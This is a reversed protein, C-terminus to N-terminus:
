ASSWRREDALATLSRLESKCPRGNAHVFGVRALAGSSIAMLLDHSITYPPCASCLCQLCEVFERVSQLGTM